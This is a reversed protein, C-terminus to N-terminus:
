GRYYTTNDKPTKGKRSLLETVTLFEYDGAQMEKLAKIAGKVTSKHIDHLLVIDGDKANKIMRCTRSNSRYKWDLTDVSWMIHPLDIQQLVRDNRNGGPTRWVTFEGGSVKALTKAAKEYDSIIKSNSLKLQNKHAWSHYGVEHGEEVIRRVTNKYSSIRNGVLFFTVRIDNEKLADLLEATYKGPGDDFTIAVQKVDCVKVQCTAAFGTNKGRATITVTGKKVATVVGKADVKAVKPNSSTWVVEDETGVPLIELELARKAGPKIKYLTREFEGKAIAFTATQTKVKNGFMDTIQCYAQTGVNEQTLKLSYSKGKVSTKQFKTDAPGKVYWLYTVQDGSAKATIKGTTGLDSLVDVPQKTIKLQKPIKLTVTQTKVKNGYADTIVCYVQRGSKAKTMKFSYTKSTISSKKFKNADPNKYYWQYKLGDGSAKVATKVKEGAEAAVHTPQEKIELKTIGTLTVTGTKVKNGYTDTILCYLQRGTEKKSAKWSYTAKTVTTKTFSKAGPDKAYWCYRLGEGQATVQVKVTEGFTTRQSKPQKLIKLKVPTAVNVTESTVTNGYADTIVCYLETGSTDKELVLVYVNESVTSELFEKDAPGRVYWRYQLGDGKAEVSISIKEGIQGRGNRPQKIIELPTTVTEAFVSLPVITILTILCLIFSLIRKKM